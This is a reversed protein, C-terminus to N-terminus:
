KTRFRIHKPLKMQSQCSMGKITEDILHISGPGDILDIFFDFREKGIKGISLACLLSEQLEEWEYDILRGLLSQSEAKSNNQKM